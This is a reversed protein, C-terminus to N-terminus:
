TPGDVFDNVNVPVHPAAPSPAMQPTAISPSTHPSMHHHGQHYQQQQATPHYQQQQQQQIQHQQYQQQHHSHQQQAPYQGVSPTSTVRHYSPAAGASLSPVAHSSPAAVPPLSPLGPLTPAAMPPTPPLTQSSSASSVSTVSNNSTTSPIGYAVSAPLSTGTAVTSQQQQPNSSTPAVAAQAAAAAAAAQQQQQANAHATYWGRMKRIMAQLTATTQENTPPPAIAPSTGSTTIFLANKTSAVAPDNSSSTGSSSSSGDTPTPTPPLPYRAFLQEISPLRHAGLSLPEGIDYQPKYRHMATLLGSSLQVSVEPPKAAAIDAARREYEKAELATAVAMKDTFADLKASALAESAPGSAELFRKIRDTYRQDFPLHAFPSYDDYSLPGYSAGGQLLANLVDGLATRDNINRGTCLQLEQERDWIGM